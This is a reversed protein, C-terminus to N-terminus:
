VPPHTELSPLRFPVSIYFGRGILGRSPSPVLLWIRPLRLSPLLPGSDEPTAPLGGRIKVPQIKPDVRCGPARSSEALADRARHTSASFPLTLCQKGTRVQGCRSKRHRLVLGRLVRRMNHERSSLPSLCRLRRVHAIHSRCAETLSFCALPSTAGRM